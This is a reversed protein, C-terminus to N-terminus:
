CLVEQNTVLKLRLGQQSSGGEGWGEGVLVRSLSGLRAHERESERWPGRLPWAHDESLTPPSAPSELRSRRAQRVTGAQLGARARCPLPSGGIPQAAHDTIAVRAVRSRIFTLVEFGLAANM